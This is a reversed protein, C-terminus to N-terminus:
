RKLIKELGMEREEGEPVGVIHISSCKTTDCHDRLHYKNRKMKKGKIQKQPLPIDEPTKGRTPRPGPAQPIGRPPLSQHRGVPPEQSEQPCPWAVPTNLPLRDASPYLQTGVRNNNSRPCGLVPAMSHQTPGPRPALTAIRCLSFVSYYYRPSRGGRDKGGCRAM